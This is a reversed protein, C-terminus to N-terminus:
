QETNQITTRRLLDIVEEDTTQSFEHYWYGVASFPEPTAAVVVDDAERRMMGISDPPAVPVAIILRAPNMKRIVRAAAIMTYGTAIGDDVLIATKGALSVPSRGTSYLQSRRAIEKRQRAAEDVIYSRPIRLQEVVQENIMTIDDGAVAGIAYEPQNPAGIKRPIIIELPIGLEKAIEYGVVVGGRPIAIVVADANRYSHLMAALQRGADVRDKFIM